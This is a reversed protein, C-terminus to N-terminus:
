EKYEIKEAGGTKRSHSSNFSFHVTEFPSGKGYSILANKGVANRKHNVLEAAQKCSINVKGSQNKCYGYKHEYNIHQCARVIFIGCQASLESSGSVLSLFPIFVISKNVSFMPVIITPAATM